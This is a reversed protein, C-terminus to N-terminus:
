PPNTIASEYIEIHRDVVREHRFSGDYAARAARRRVASDTPLEQALAEALRRLDVADGSRFVEGGGTRAWEAFDGADSALVPTGSALAEIWTLGLGEPWESPFVLFASDAVVQLAEHHPLRGLHEINTHARTARQVEGTLSGDGVIVLRVDPLRGFAELMTAIGKEKELRGVFCFQHRRSPAPDGPDDVSHPVVVIRDPDIGESELISKHMDTLAIHTTIRRSFAGSAWGVAQGLSVATSRVVSGHYCRHRIGPTRLTSGVCMHCPADDRTLTGAICSMRFAHHTMVLPIGKRQVAIIVSSSLLPFPTHLHVVDPQFATLEAELSRAASRNWVPQTMAALRGGPQQADLMDVTSPAWLGVKWGAGTLLKTLREIVVDAGGIASQRNHVMLVRLGTM